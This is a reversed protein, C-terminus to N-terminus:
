KSSCRKFYLQGHLCPNKQLLTSSLTNDVRNCVSLLLFKDFTILDINKILTHKQEIVKESDRM